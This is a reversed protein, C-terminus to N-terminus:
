SWFSGYPGSRRDNIGAESILLFVGLFHFLVDKESQAEALSQSELGEQSQCDPDRQKEDKNRQKGQSEIMRMSM